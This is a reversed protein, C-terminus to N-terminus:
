YEGGPAPEPGPTDPVDAKDGTPLLGFHEKYLAEIGNHILQHGIAEAAVAQMLPPISALQEYASDAFHGTGPKCMGDELEDSTLILNCEKCFNGNASVQDTIFKAAGMSCVLIQAGDTLTIAGKPQGDPGILIALEM